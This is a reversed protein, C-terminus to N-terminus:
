GARRVTFRCHDYTDMCACGSEQVVVECGLAMRGVATLMGIIPHCVPTECPGYGAVFPSNAVVLDIGDEHLQMSWRGWGLQPATEQITEVLAASSAAGAARYAAASKGGQRTISRAFAELVQPRLAAPLEHLIGMLADARLMMYRIGHDRYEGLEADFELRERLGAM